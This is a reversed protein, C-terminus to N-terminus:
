IKSKWWKGTALRKTVILLIVGVFQCSGAYAGPAFFGGSATRIAGSIPTGILCALSIGTLALGVREGATELSGMNVAPNPLLGIFAGFSIRLRENTLLRFSM